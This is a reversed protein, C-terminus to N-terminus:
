RDDPLWRPASRRSRAHRRRRRSSRCRRSCGLRHARGGGSTGRRDAGVGASAQPVRRGARAHVARRVEPARDRAGAARADEPFHVRRLATDLDDLGEADLLESPMPDPSRRCGSSRRSSWSVSRGPRSARPPATSRRSGGRTSWTASTGASSRPRRTRSSSGAGTGPSAHGLRRAGSGGQLHRGGVAPQLVDPRAHRHRGRADRDGDVAAPADLAERDQAGARDRDGTRGIRLDGIASSRPVTSTDGRTTASSIASREPHGHGRSSRRAGGRGQGAPRDPADRAEPGRAPGPFRARPRLSLRARGHLTRGDM